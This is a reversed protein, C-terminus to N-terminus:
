HRFIPRRESMWPTDDGSNGIRDSCINQGGVTIQITMRPIRLFAPSTAATRIHLSIPVIRPARRCGRARLTAILIPRRGMKM